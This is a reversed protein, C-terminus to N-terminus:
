KNAYKIYLNYLAEMSPIFESNPHEVSASLKKFLLKDSASMASYYGCLYELITSLDLSDIDARTISM